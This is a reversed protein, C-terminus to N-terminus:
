RVLILYLFEMVFVIIGSEKPFKLVIVYFSNKIIDMELIFNQKDETFM